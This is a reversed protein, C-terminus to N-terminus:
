QGGLQRWLTHLTKELCSAPSQQRLCATLAEEAALRPGEGLAKRALPPLVVVAQPVAQPETDPQAGPATEPLVGHETRPTSSTKSAQPGQEHPAQAQERSPQDTKPAAELRTGQGVGLGAGVFLTGPAFPPVDVNEASVLVVVPIGLSDKFVEKWQHLARAEEVTLVKDKDTLFIEVTPPPAVQAMRREFHWWFAAATGAFVLLLLLARLFPRDGNVELLRLRM